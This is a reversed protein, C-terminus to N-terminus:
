VATAARGTRRQRRTSTAPTTAGVVAEGVFRRLALTFPSKPSVEAIPRAALLAADASRPDQPV